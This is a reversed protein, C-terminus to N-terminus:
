TKRYINYQPHQSHYTFESEELLGKIWSDRLSYYIAIEMNEEEWLPQHMCRSVEWTLHNEDHSIVQNAKDCPMGETMADTISRYVYSPKVWVPQIVNKHQKGIQYFIEQLQEQSYPNSIVQSVIWALKRETLKLHKELWLHINEYDIIEHLDGSPFPFNQRVYAQIQNKQSIDKLEEIIYDGWQNQLKIKNFMWVHIEAFKEAM